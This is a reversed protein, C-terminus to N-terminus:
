RPRPSQLTVSLAPPRALRLAAMREEAARTVRAELDGPIRRNSSATIRTRSNSIRAKASAVGDVRNVARVLSREVGRRNLDAPHISPGKEMPLATPRRRLLQLFLLLLGAAVLALALQRTSPSSWANVRASRYWQDYPIVWPDRGIEALVIEVAVLVGGVVLSLALALALLRSLIRM